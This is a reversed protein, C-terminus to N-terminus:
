RSNASDKMQINIKTFLTLSAFLPLDNLFHFCGEQLSYKPGVAQMFGHNM